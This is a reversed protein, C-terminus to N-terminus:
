RSEASGLESQPVAHKHRLSQTIAANLDIQFAVAERVDLVARIHPGYVVIAQGEARAHLPEGSVSALRLSTM